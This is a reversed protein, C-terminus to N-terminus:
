QRPGLLLARLREADGLTGAVDGLAADVAEVAEAVAEAGGCRALADGAPKLRLAPHAGTQEAVNTTLMGQQTLLRMGLAAIAEM